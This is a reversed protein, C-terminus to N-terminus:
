RSGPDAPEAQALAAGWSGGVLEDVVVVGWEVGDAAQISRRLTWGWPSTPAPDLPEPTLPIVRTEGEDGPVALTARLLATRPIKTLTSPDARLSLSSAGAADRRAALLTATVPLEGAQPV